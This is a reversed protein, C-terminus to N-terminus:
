KEAPLTSGLVDDCLRRTGMRIIDTANLDGKTDASLKAAAAEIRALDDASWRINKQRHKM